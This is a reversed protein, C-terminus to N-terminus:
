GAGAPFYMSYETSSQYSITELPLGVNSWADAVELGEPPFQSRWACLRCRELDYLSIMGRTSSFMLALTGTYSPVELGADKAQKVKKPYVYVKEEAIQAASVSADYKGIEIDSEQAIMLSNNKYTFSVLGHKLCLSEVGTEAHDRIRKPIAKYDHFMLYVKFLGKEVDWGLGYFSFKGKGLGELYYPNLTIGRALLAKEGVSWFEEFYKVTGFRFRSSEVYDDGVALTHSYTYSSMRNGTWSGDLNFARFEKGYMRCFFEIYEIDEPLLEAHVNYWRNNYWNFLTRQFLEMLRDTFSQHSLIGPSERNAAELAELEDLLSGGEWRLPAGAARPKQDIMYRVSELKRTLGHVYEDWRGYDATYGLPRKGFLTVTTGEQNDWSVDLSSCSRSELWESIKLESAAHYDSAAYEVVVAGIPLEDALKKFIKNTLEEDWSQNDIWVVAANSLDSELADRCHFEANEINFATKLKKAEDVLNCLVDYGVSEIGWTLAAYLTETGVNSGLHIFKLNHNQARTIAAKAMPIKVFMEHFTHFFVMGYAFNIFTYDREPHKKVIMDHYEHMAQNRDAVFQPTCELTRISKIVQSLTSLRVHKNAAPNESGMRELRKVYAWERNINLRPTDVIAPHGITMCFVPWVNRDSAWPNVDLGKAWAKFFKDPQRNRDYARALWEWGEPVQPDVQVARELGDVSEAWNGLDFHARGILNAVRGTIKEEQSLYENVWAQVVLAASTSKGLQAAKARLRETGGLREMALTRAQTLQRVSDEFEESEFLAMGLLALLTPSKPYKKRLKKIMIQSSDSLETELKGILDEMESTEPEVSRVKEVYDAVGVDRLLRGVEEDLESVKVVPVIKAMIEDQVILNNRLVDLFDGAEGSISASTSYQAASPWAGSFSALVVCMLAFLRPPSSYMMGRYFIFPRESLTFV